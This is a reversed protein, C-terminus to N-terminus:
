EAHPGQLEGELKIRYGQGVPRAILGLAQQLQPDQLGRGSLLIEVLYARERLEVVGSAEVPGSLTIVQGRLAEGPEQRFDLAYTGLPLM